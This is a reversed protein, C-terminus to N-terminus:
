TLPSCLRDFFSLNTFSVISPIVGPLSTSATAQPESASLKFMQARSDDQEPFPHLIITCYWCLIRLQVQPNQM